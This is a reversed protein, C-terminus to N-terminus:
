KIGCVSICKVPEMEKSDIEIQGFGSRNLVSKIKKISNEIAEENKAWRPQFILSFKGGNKLFPLIGSIERVPDNWFFHINHTFIHDFHEEPYALKRVGGNLLTVIAQEIYEQNIQSAHRFMIESNDLGVVTGNGESLEHAIYYILHGSGYGISLINNDPHLNLKEITWFLREQNVQDLLWPPLSQADHDISLEKLFYTKTRMIIFFKTHLLAVCYFIM